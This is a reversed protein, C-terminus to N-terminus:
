KSEADDSRLGRAPCGEPLPKGDFVETGCHNIQHWVFGRGDPLVAVVRDVGFEINSMGLFAMADGTELSEGIEVADFCAFWAPGTLPEAGEYPEYTESMMAQSQTTTFCARYRIPSSDANIAEFNDFLIPEPMGSAMTVMKVDNIGTAVVPAYYAYVQFYYMAIGGILSVIVILGAILKGIM